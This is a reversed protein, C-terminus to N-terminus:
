TGVEPVTLRFPGARSNMVQNLDPMVQACPVIPPDESFRVSTRRCKDHTMAKLLSGLPDKEKTKAHRVGPMRMQYSRQFDETPMTSSDIAIKPDFRMADDGYQKIQKQLLTQQRKEELMQEYQSLENGDGYYFEEESVDGTVRGTVCIRGFRHFFGVM